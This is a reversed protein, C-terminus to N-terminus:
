VLDLINRWVYPKVRGLLGIEELVQYRTANKSNVTPQQNQGYRRVSPICFATAIPRCLYSVTGSRHAGKNECGGGVVMSQYRRRRQFVGEM